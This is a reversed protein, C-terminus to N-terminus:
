LSEYNGVSHYISCVTKNDVDSKFLQIQDIQLLQGEKLDSFDTIHAKPFNRALISVEGVPKVEYYDLGFNKDRDIKMADLLLAARVLIHIPYPFMRMVSIDESGGFKDKCSSLRSDIFYDHEDKNLNNLRNDFEEKQQDDMYFPPLITIHPPYKDFKQGLEIPTICAMLCYKALKRSACNEVTKSEPSSNSKESM